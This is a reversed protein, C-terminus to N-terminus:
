ELGWTAMIAVHPRSSSGPINQQCRGASVCAPHLLVSNKQGSPLPVGAPGGYNLGQWKKQGNRYPFYIALPGPEFHDGAPTQYNRIFKLLTNVM